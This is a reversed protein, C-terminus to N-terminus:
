LKIELIYGGSFLPFLWEFINVVKEAIKVFVKKLGRSANYMEPYQVHYPIIRYKKFGARICITNLTKYSFIHVHDEHNSERGFLALLVNSLGTANPTSLILTKGKYIEKVLLLFKMVDDIHEIVEGAVIIEVPYKKMFSENISYLDKKIIKSNKGTVIEGRIADSSDIGIVQKAKGAILSHLWYGTGRKSEVATEDYCGIDLVRKDTCLDSMFALRKVPKGIKLKELPTYRLTDM